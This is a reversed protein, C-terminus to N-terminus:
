KKINKNIYEKLYKEKSYYTGFIRDWIYLGFGYNYNLKNHHIFHDFSNIYGSHASCTNITGLFILIIFLWDYIGFLIVSTSLSGINLIIHEILDANFGAAAVLYISQHHKKHNYYYWIHFSRHIFYFYTEIFFYHINIYYILDRINYNKNIIKYQFLYHFIYIYFTSIFLNKIGSIIEIIWIIWIKKQYKYIKYNNWTNNSAINLDSILYYIISGIYAIIHVSAYYLWNM